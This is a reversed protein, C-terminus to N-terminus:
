LLEQEGRAAGTRVPPPATDDSSRRALVDPDPKEQGASEFYRRAEAPTWLLMDDTIRLSDTGACGQKLSALANSTVYPSAPMPRVPQASNQPPLGPTTAALLVRLYRLPCQRILFVDSLYVSLQLSFCLCDVHLVCCCAYLLVGIFLLLNFTGICQVAFSLIFTPIRGHPPM